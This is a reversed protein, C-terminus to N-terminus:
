NDYPPEARTQKAKASLLLTVAPAAVAVKGAKNLFARREDDHDTKVTQDKKDM